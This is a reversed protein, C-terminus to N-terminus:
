RCGRRHSTRFHARSLSDPDPGGNRCPANFARRRKMESTKLPGHCSGILWLVRWKGLGSRGVGWLSLVRIQICYISSEDVGAPYSITKREEACFYSAEHSHPAWTQFISFLVSPPVKRPLSHCPPSVAAWKLTAYILLPPLGSSSPTHWPGQLKLESLVLAGLATESAFQPAFRSPGGGSLLFVTKSTEEVRDLPHCLFAM